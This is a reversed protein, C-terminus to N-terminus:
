SRKALLRTVSNELSGPAFCSHFTGQIHVLLFPDVLSLGFFVPSNQDYASATTWLKYELGAM